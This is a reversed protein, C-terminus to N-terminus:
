GTPAPEPLPYGLAAVCEESNMTRTSPHSVETGPTRFIPVCVCRASGATTTLAVLAAGARIVDRIV